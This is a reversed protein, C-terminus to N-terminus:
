CSFDVLNFNKSINLLYAKASTMSEPIMQLIEAFEDASEILNLQLLDALEPEDKIKVFSKVCSIINNRLFNKATNSNLNKCEAMAIKCRMIIDDPSYYFMNEPFSNYDNVFNNVQSEIYSLMYSPFYVTQGPMHITVYPRVVYDPSCLIRLINVSALTETIVKCIDEPIYPTELYVDTVPFPGIEDLKEISAPLRLKKLSTNKFAGYQIVKVSKGFDINTLESYLFAYKGIIEVSDPIKIEHLSVCFGFCSNPIIKLSNSLNVKQLKQCNCFAGEKLNKVSDPMKIEEISSGYFANDTITQTGNKIKVAGRRKKPCALLTNGTKDYLVGDYTTYKESKATVEINQMNDCNKIYSCFHNEKLAVEDDIVLNKPADYSSFAYQFFLGSNKVVIKSCEKCMKVILAENLYIADKPIVLEKAAEDFGIVMRGAMYVGGIPEENWFPANSFALPMTVRVNDDNIIKTSQCGSFAYENIYEVSKLDIVEDPQKCFTNLLWVTEMRTGDDELSKGYEKMLLMNSNLFYKNYSIVNKVNPFMENPISIYEIEGGIVITTVNPFSKESKKGIAIEEVGSFEIKEVNDNIDMDFVSLGSANCNCMFRYGNNKIEKIVKKAGKKKTNTILIRSNAASRFFAAASKAATNEFLSLFKPPSDAQHRHPSRSGRTTYVIGCCLVNHLNQSDKRKLCGQTFKWLM